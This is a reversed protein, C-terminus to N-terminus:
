CVTRGCGFLSTHELGMSGRWAKTSVGALIMLIEAQKPTPARGAAGLKGWLAEWDAEM